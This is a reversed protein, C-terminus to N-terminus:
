TNPRQFVRPKWWRILPTSTIDDYQEKYRYNEIFYEAKQPVGIRQGGQTEVNVNGQLFYVLTGEVRVLVRTHGSHFKKNSHRMLLYGPKAAELDSFNTVKGQPDTNKDIIDDANIHPFKIATLFLQKQARYSPDWSNRVEGKHTLFSLPLGNSSAYDVLLIL